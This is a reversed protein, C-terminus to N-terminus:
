DETIQLREREAEGTSSRTVWDARLLPRCHAVSKVLSESSTGQWWLTLCLCSLLVGESEGLLSGLFAPTDWVSGM